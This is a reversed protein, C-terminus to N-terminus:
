KKYKEYDLVLDLFLFKLNLKSRNTNGGICILNNTQSFWFQTYSIYSLFISLILIGFGLYVIPVGFDAKIQLGTEQIFELLQLNKFNEIKDSFNYIGIFSGDNQYLSFSGELNNFVFILGATSLSSNVLSPLWTFWLNETQNILVLPLQYIHNELNFRIGIGEWNNQYLSIPNYYLPFNVSITKRIVENGKENLISLDTYFQQISLTNGYEIWFDNVRIPYDPIQTLVNSNLLNRIQFIEGKTVLEQANFNGLSTFFSGFLVLLMSVHVIIPAFRGLIGKYCYVDLNQQYITFEKQKLLALSNKLSIQSIFAKFKQKNYQIPKNKFFCRRAVQLEPFQQTFSCAILCFSFLVLLFVYWWTSYVHDLGFLNIIKWNLNISNANIPYNDQYFMLTQDQEIITGLISSTAITLLLIIAINLNTLYRIIIFNM